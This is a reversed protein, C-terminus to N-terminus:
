DVVLITSLLPQRTELDDGHFQEKLPTTSPSNHQALKPDFIQVFYDIAGGIRHRFKKSEVDFDPGIVGHFFQEGLAQDFYDQRHRAVLIFLWYRAFSEIFFKKAEPSRIFYYRERIKEPKREPDDFWTEFDEIQSKVNLRLAKLLLHVDGHGTITEPKEPSGFAALKECDVTSWGLRQGYWRM